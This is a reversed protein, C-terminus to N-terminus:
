RRHRHKRLICLCFTIDGAPLLFPLRTWPFLHVQSRLPLHAHGPYWMQFINRWWLKERKLSLYNDKEWRENGSNYKNRSYFIKFNMYNNFYWIDTCFYYRDLNGTSKLGNQNCNGYCTDSSFRQHHVIVDGKLHSYYVTCQIKNVNYTCYLIM